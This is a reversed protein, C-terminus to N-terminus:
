VRVEGCREAYSSTLKTRGQARCSFLFDEPLFAWAGVTAAGAGIFKVAIDIDQSVAITQFEWRAVQFPSSSCSPQKSPAECTLFAM